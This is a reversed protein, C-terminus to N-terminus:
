NCRPIIERAFWEIWGIFQDPSQTRPPNVVTATTGAEKLLGIENIIEDRGGPQHTKGIERHTYDEVQFTALPM